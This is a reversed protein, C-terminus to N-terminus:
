PGKKAFLTIETWLQWFSSSILRGSLLTLARLKEVGYMYTLINSSTM